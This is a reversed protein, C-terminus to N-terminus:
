FGARRIHQFCQARSDVKGRLLHGLADLGGTATEHKRGVMM